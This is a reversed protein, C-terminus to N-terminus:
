NLKETKTFLSNEVIIEMIFKDGERVTIIEPNKKIDNKASYHSLNEWLSTILKEMYLGKWKKTDLKFIDDKAGTQVQHHGLTIWFLSEKTSTDLIGHFLWKVSYASLVPIYTLFIAGGYCLPAHAINHNTHKKLVEHM